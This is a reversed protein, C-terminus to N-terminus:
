PQPALPDTHKHPHSQQCPPLPIHHAHPSMPTPPTGPHHLTNQLCTTVARGAQELINAPFDVVELKDILIPPKHGWHPKTSEPTDLAHSLALGWSPTGVKKSAPPIVPNMADLLALEDRFLPVEDMEKDQQDLSLEIMPAKPEKAVLAEIIAPQPSMATPWAPMFLSSSTSMATHWALMILSSSAVPPAVTDVMQLPLLKVWRPESSVGEQTLLKCKAAHDIQELVAICQRQVLKIQDLLGEIVIVALNDQLFSATPPVPQGAAELQQLLVEMEADLQAQPVYERGVPPAVAHAYIM